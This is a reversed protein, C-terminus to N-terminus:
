HASVRLWPRQPHAHLQADTDFEDLLRGRLATAREKTFPGGLPLRVM